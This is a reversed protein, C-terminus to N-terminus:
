RNSPEVLSVSSATCSVQSRSVRASAPATSLKPAQSVVTIVCTQRSMSRARLVRSFAAGASAASRSAAAGMGISGSASTSSASATPEAM